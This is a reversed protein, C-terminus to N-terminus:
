VREDQVAYELLARLEEWQRQELKDRQTGKKQEAAEVEDVFRKAAKISGHVSTVTPHTIRGLWWKQSSLSVPSRASSRPTDPLTVYRIGSTRREVICSLM